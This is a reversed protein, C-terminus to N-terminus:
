LWFSRPSQLNMDSLPFTGRDRPRSERWSLSARCSRDVSGAACIGNRALRMLAVGSDLTPMRRQAKRRSKKDPTLGVTGSQHGTATL